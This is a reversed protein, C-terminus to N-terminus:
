NKDEGPTQDNHGGRARRHIISERQHEDEDRRGHDGRGRFDGRGRTVRGRFDGRARISDPAGRGRGPLPVHGEDRMAAPHFDGREPAGRM